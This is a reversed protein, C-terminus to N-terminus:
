RVIIIGQLEPQADVWLSPKNKAVLSYPFNHILSNYAMAHEFYHLYARQAQQNILNLNKRHAESFRKEEISSLLKSQALYNQIFGDVSQEIVASNMLQQLNNANTTKVLYQNFFGRRAQNIIKMHAISSNVGNKYVIITNQLSKAWMFMIIAFWFIVNWVNNKSINM